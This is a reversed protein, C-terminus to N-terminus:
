TERRFPLIVNDPAASDLSKISAMSAKIASQCGQDAMLRGTFINRARFLNTQISGPPPSSLEQPAGGVDRRSAGIRARRQGSLPCINRARFM